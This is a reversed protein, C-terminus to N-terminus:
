FANVTGTSPSIAVTGWPAVGNAGETTVATWSSSDYGPNQFGPPLSGNGPWLWSGDSVLYAGGTCNCATQVLNIEAAFIVGAPNPVTLINTAVVAFVVQSAAGLNISWTQATTFSTGSGIQFGNAYLTYENDAAIIVTASGVLQGPPATYTRRFARTGAPAIGGSVETTWIWAAGALTLVPPVSPVPITGWPAAGYGAEVLVPRWPNDDLSLSQYNSPFTIAGRWTADSVLQSTTGDSYTIQIAVLLGAPNPVTAGNTATVAFVNLCDYLPVCFRAAYRFDGSSGVLDNNVYLSFSNDATIIIDAELPTKGAPAVFDKRFARSGVPAVGGSVDTTWIWQSASFDLAQVGIWTTLALLITQFVLMTSTSQHDYVGRDLAKIRSGTELLLPAAVESLKTSM